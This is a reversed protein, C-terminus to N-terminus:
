PSVLLRDDVVSVGPANWVAREAERKETYSHVTGRLTVLGDEVEVAIDEAEREATRRLADKIRETVAYTSVPAPKVRILNTVGKVGTLYRVAREAAEKQYQWEVEGDLTIWGGEVRAKIKDDPVEIDWRLANVVAHAIATDTREHSSPLRVLLTDAVATVGNVREAARVAAYKQAFSDVYGALTVVGDKVSVAIEAERVSPEWKLEDLVDQQLQQDTKMM